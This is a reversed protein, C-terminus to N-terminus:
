VNKRTTISYKIRCKATGESFESEFRQTCGCEETVEKCDIRTPLEAHVPPYYFMLLSTCHMSCREPCMREMKLLILKFERLAEIRLVLLAFKYL